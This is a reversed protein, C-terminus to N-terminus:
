RADTRAQEATRLRARGEAGGQLGWRLLGGIGKVGLRVAPRRSVPLYFGHMKAAWEPLLDQAAVFILKSFPALTPSPADQSLLAQAVERTRADCRLKPRMAQLYAEVAQRTEPIETAGLKRAVTATEAFYRDQEALSLAPNRYRLYAALFCSVEAVHVWTLLDPDDATYALGDTTQGRVQGHISRVRDVLAQAQETSGYTTGAIFRATRRLRGQMDQRFNSHDWVGALARPHLMQLLLAAVGGIMMSTFDGHVRWCASQPGFWGADGETLTLVREGDGSGLLQRVQNGIARRVDPM